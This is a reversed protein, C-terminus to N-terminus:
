LALRFGTEREEQVAARLSAQKDKLRPLGWFNKSLGTGCRVLGARELEHLEASKSEADVPVLQAVARGRDMIVVHEGSKVHRLQQSLTAKAKSISITKM